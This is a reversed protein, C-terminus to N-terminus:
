QSDGKNLLLSYQCFSDSLNLKGDRARESDQALKDAIELINHVDIESKSTVFFFREYNPAEDLEYALSLLVIGQDGLLASDSGSEPYHLTVTGNGDLSFIVGYNEDAAGYAIQLLDGAKAADGDKLLDVESNAKRYILLHPKSRDIQATGKIRTGDPLSFHTDQGPNFLILFLLILATSVAPIAYVFRRNLHPKEAKQKEAKKVIIRREINPTMNEPKYIRLIDGNSEKLDKLRDMLRADLKIKEEIEAMRKNPLEGLLYRELEWDRVPYTKM